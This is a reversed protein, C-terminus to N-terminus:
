KGWQLSRVTFLDDKLGQNVVFDLIDMETRHGTRPDSVTIKKNRMVGHFDTFNTNVFRKVEEGAKNFYHTEQQAFTKKDVRHQVKSYASDASKPTLLLWYSTDDEKELSLNWDAAWSVQAMDESSLDSGALSQNMNHAAVRRVKKFGPLYVHVTNRDEVLTSMGKMEGSTFQILRKKDGKQFMTMDYSKKSGDVEFVTIRIEMKQDAFGNNLAEMKALIEQPSLKPAAAPAAAPPPTPPAPTSADEQALALGWVLLAAVVTSRIM